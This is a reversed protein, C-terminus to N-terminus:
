ICVKNIIGLKQAHGNEGALLQNAHEFNNLLVIMQM